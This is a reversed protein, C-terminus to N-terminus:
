DELEKILRNLYWNSKSLDQVPKEKNQYRWLYKLSNGKLYGRFEEPSMSAKIAEICEIGGATYHSPSNVPDSVAIDLSDEQDRQLELYQEAFFDIVENYNVGENVNGDQGLAELMKSTYLEYGSMEKDNDM